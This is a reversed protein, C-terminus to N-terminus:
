TFTGINSRESSQTSYQNRYNGHRQDKRPEPTTGEEVQEVKNEEDNSAGIEEDGNVKNDLKDEIAIQDLNENSDPVVKECDM